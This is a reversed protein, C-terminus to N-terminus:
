PLRVHRRRAPTRSASHWDSRMLVLARDPSERLIPLHSRWFLEVQRKAAGSDGAAELSQREWENWGFASDSQGTFDLATLLWAKEDASCAIKTEEAFARYDPPMWPYRDVIEAPLPQRREFLEIRWGSARLTNLLDHHNSNM